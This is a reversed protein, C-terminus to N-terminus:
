PTMPIKLAHALVLPLSKSRLIPDLVKNKPPEPRPPAGTKGSLRNLLKEVNKRPSDQYLESLIRKVMRRVTFLKAVRTVVKEGKRNSEEGGFGNAKARHM